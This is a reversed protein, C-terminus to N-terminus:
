WRPAWAGPRCSKSFAGPICIVDHEVCCRIVDPALTPSVVFRAGAEIVERASAEDLVTGAGILCGPIDAAVLSRVAEVAGPTTLTVEFAGIGGATVAEAARRLSGAENRRVVAIVGAKLLHAIDPSIGTSDRSTTISTTTMSTEQYSRM